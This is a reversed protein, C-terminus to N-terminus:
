AKAAEKEQLLSGNRNIPLPPTIRRAKIEFYEHEETSTFGLQTPILWKKSHPPASGKEHHWWKDVYEDLQNERYHNYPKLSYSMGHWPGRLNNIVIDVQARLYPADLGGIQKSHRLAEVVEHFLEQRSDTTTGKYATFLRFIFHTLMPALGERLHSGPFMKARGAAQLWESLLGGKGGEKSEEMIQARTLPPISQFMHELLEQWAGEATLYDEMKSSSEAVSILRGSLNVGVNKEKIGGLRVGAPDFLDEGSITGLLTGGDDTVRTIGTATDVEYRLLVNGTGDVLTDWVRLAEGPGLTALNYTDPFFSECFGRFPIKGRIADTDFYVEQNALVMEQMERLTHAGDIRHGQEDNGQPGLTQNVPIPPLYIMWWGAWDKKNGGYRQSRHIYGALPDQLLVRDKDDVFGNHGRTKTKKQLEQLSITLMDFATFLKSAFFRAYEHYHGFRKELEAGLNSRGSEGSLTDYSLNNIYGEEGPRKAGQEIIFRLMERVQGGWEPHQTTVSLLETRSVQRKNLEKFLNPRDTTAKGIEEILKNDLTVLQARIKQVVRDIDAEREPLASYAINQFRNFLDKNHSEPAAKWFGWDFVDLNALDGGEVGGVVEDVVEKLSMTSVERPELLKQIRLETQAISANLSDARPDESDHLLNFLRLTLRNLEIKLDSVEARSLVKPQGTVADIQTPDTRYYLDISLVRHVFDRLEAMALRTEESTPGYEGLSTRLSREMPAVVRTLLLERIRVGQIDTARIRLPELYQTILAELYEPQTRGVSDVKNQYLATVRAIAATYDAVIKQGMEDDSLAREEEPFPLIFGPDDADSPGSPGDFGTQTSIDNEGSDPSHQGSQEHM